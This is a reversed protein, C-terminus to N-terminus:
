FLGEKVYVVDDPQLTDTVKAELINVQGDAARRHIKLGRQTGRITLGGGVSIAQMVRMDPELRYAGSRQVEGYIYFMQARPVFITDGSRVEVSKSEGNRYLAPVDVTTKTTQGNRQGVITIVDDGTATIGGALALIDILKMGPDDLAYRGPRGVQGLVSIQRSRVQTVAVSVQPNRMFQGKKLRAAIREGAQPATGGAIPVEGILPFVITGRESIRAETTLDPNQFVTIRVQDGHGLIDSVDAALAAPSVLAAFLLLLAALRRATKREM